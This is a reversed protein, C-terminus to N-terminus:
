SGSNGFGYSRRAMLYVFCPAGILSTLIGIPLESRPIIVRCLVDSWILLIAGLLASVPILRRHDTGFLMRVIHPIVLGVFGIMGAAYVVFGIMASSILLYVIRYRHLDTGLTASVEDGLLMLNLTRSQSWFFLSCLLIFPLLFALEQWNAGGLGGMLWFTVSMMGDRDHAFYTVFSSVASCVSSLAMGALLLRVSNSRGGIGSLLLVLLSVGFAGAFGMVGVFNGGFFTGVGLLIALTAGMSAGSSVGLIYPDALPNKVIAQMVVGCVALGMGVAVALLLRPLRIFWVIDTIVGKAYLQPDGIGFLQYLVVGFIDGASIDTSGMKVALVLSVVLAALLLLLISTFATRSHLLAALKAPLRKSLRSANM